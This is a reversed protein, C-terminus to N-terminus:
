IARTTLRVASGPRHGAVMDIHFDIVEGAKVVWVNDVNDEYTYGRCLYVDCNYDDDALALAGEIPGALDLLPLRM